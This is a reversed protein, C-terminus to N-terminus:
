LLLVQSGQGRSCIPTQLMPFLSLQLPRCLVEGVGACDDCISLLILKLKQSIRLMEIVM